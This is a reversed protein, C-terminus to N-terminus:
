WVSMQVLPSLSEVKLPSSIWWLSYWLFWMHFYKPLLHWNVFPFCIHLFLYTFHKVIKILLYFFGFVHNHWRSRHDLPLTSAAPVCTRSNLGPRLRRIKWPSFFRLMGEKPLSTFGNIGRRANVAHLLYRFTVHFDPMKLCFEDAM